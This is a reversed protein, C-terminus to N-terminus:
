ILTITLPISNVRTISARFNTVAQCSSLIATNLDYKPSRISRPTYSSKCNLFPYRLTLLLDQTSGARLPRIHVIIKRTMLSYGCTPYELAERRFKLCKAQTTINSGLRLVQLESRFYYLMRSFTIYCKPDDDPLVGCPM